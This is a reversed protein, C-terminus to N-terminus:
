VCVRVCVCVCVCVVYVCLLLYLGLVRLPVRVAQVVMALRPNLIFYAVSSGKTDMSWSHADAGHDHRPTNCHPATLQPSDFHTATHQEHQLTNRHQLTNCHTSSHQPTNCHTTTHQLTNLHAARPMWVGHICVVVMKCPTATHQLVNNNTTTHQLTNSM